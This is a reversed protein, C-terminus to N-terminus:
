SVKQRLATLVAFSNPIIVEPAIAPTSLITAESSLKRLARMIVQKEEVSLTGGGETIRAILNTQERANSELAAAREQEVLLHASMPATASSSVQDLASRPLRHDLSRSGPYSTTPSSQSLTSVTTTATTATAATPPRGRYVRVFRNGFIAEPSALAQQSQEVTAFTITARQNSSEIALNVITGFKMFFSTIESQNLYDQPINEVVILPTAPAKPEGGRRRNHDLSRDAPTTSRHPPGSALSQVPLLPNPLTPNPAGSSWAPSIPTRPYRQDTTRPPRSLHPQSLGQPQQHQQHQQDQQQRPFPMFPSNPPISYVADIHQFACNVGRACFGRDSKWVINLVSTARFCLQSRHPKRHYDKCYDLAAPATPILQHSQHSSYTPDSRSAFPNYSSTRHTSSSAPASPPPYYPSRNNNHSTTRTAPNPHTSKPQPIPDDLKRKTSKLQDPKSLFIFLKDVFSTTDSNNL